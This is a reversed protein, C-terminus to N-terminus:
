KGHFFCFLFKSMKRPSFDMQNQCIIRWKDIVVPVDGSRVRILDVRPGINLSLDWQQTLIGALVMAVSM